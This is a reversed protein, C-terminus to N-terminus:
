RKILRFACPQLAAGAVDTDSSLQGVRELVKGAFGFDRSSSSVKFPTLVLDVCM